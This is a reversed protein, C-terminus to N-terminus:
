EEEYEAFLERSMQEFFVTQEHIKQEHFDYISEIYEEDIEGLGPITKAYDVFHQKAKLYNEKESGGKRNSLLIKSIRDKLEENNIDENKIFDLFERLRQEKRDLVRKKQRLFSALMRGHVDFHYNGLLFELPEDFLTVVKSLAELNPQGQGKEIRGYYQQSIGMSEAVEKQTMGKKERLWKLRQAFIDM